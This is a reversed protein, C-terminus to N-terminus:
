DTVREVKSGIWCLYVKNHPEVPEYQFAGWAEGNRGNNLKVCVKRSDGDENLIFRDGIALELFTM